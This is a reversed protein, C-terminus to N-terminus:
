PKVDWKACFQDNQLHEEWGIEQSTSFFSFRVCCFCVNMQFVFTSSCLIFVFFQLWTQNGPFPPPGIRYSRPGVHSVFCAFAQEIFGSYYYCTTLTIQCLAADGGCMSPETTNKLHRWHAGWVYFGFISAMAVDSLVEFDAIDEDSLKVGFVQARSDLLTDRAIMCGFNYGMSLCFPTAMAVDRLHLTDAIDANQRRGSLGVEYGIAQDSDDVCLWNIAVKTGFNTVM